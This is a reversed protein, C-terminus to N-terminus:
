RDQLEVKNQAYSPSSKWVRGAWNNPLRRVKIYFMKDVKVLDYIGKFVDKLQLM